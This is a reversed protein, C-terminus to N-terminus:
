ELVLETGIRNLEILQDRFVTRVKSKIKEFDFSQDSSRLSALDRWLFNGLYYGKAGNEMVLRFNEKFDSYSKHSEDAALIWPVDLESSITAALLPDKIDSLVLIDALGRLESLAALKVEENSAPLNLKLLFDIGLIRCYDKIEALLQMKEIAKEEQPSYNLELKALAYNNKLEELSFNPFLIPLQEPLFKQHQELRILVGSQGEKQNILPFTYVPDFVVGTAEQSLELILAQLQELFELNDPLSLDLSLLEALSLVQDLALIAFFSQINSISPLKM